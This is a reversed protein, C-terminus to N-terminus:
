CACLTHARALMRVGDEKCPSGHGSSDDAYCEAEGDGEDCGGSLTIVGDDAARNEIRLVTGDDTRMNPEGCGFGASFAFHDGVGCSEVFNGTQLWARVREGDVTVAEPLDRLGDIEFHALLGGDVDGEAQAAILLGDGDLSGAFEELSLIGADTLNNILPRHIREGEVPAHQNIKNEGHRSRVNAM